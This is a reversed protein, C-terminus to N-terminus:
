KRKEKKIKLDNKKTTAAKFTGDISIFGSFDEPPEIDSFDVKLEGRKGEKDVWLKVESVSVEVNHFNNLDRTVRRISDGEKLIRLTAYKIVGPMFSTRPPILPHRITFTKDCEKCKFTVKEYRIRRCITPTGLDQITRMKYTIRKIKESSCSPCKEPFFNADSYERIEVELKDKYKEEM